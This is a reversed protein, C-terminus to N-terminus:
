NDIIYTNPQMGSFNFAMNLKNWSKKIEGAQQTKLPESLISNGDFNYGFLIYKDGRISTYTFRGALDM